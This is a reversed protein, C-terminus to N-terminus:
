LCQFHRQNTSPSGFAAIGSSSSLLSPLIKRRFFMHLCPVPCSESPQYPRSVRRQPSGTSAPGQLHQLRRGQGYKNGAVQTGAAVVSGVLAAPPAAEGPQGGGSGEACPAPERCGDGLWAGPPGRSTGSSESSMRGTCSRQRMEGEETFTQNGHCLFSQSQNGGKKRRGDKM